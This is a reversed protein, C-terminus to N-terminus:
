DDLMAILEELSKAKAVGAPPTREISGSVVPEEESKIAVGNSKKGRRLEVGLARAEEALEKSNDDAADADVDFAAADKRLEEFGADLKVILDRRSRALGESVAIQALEPGMWLGWRVAAALVERRLERWRALPYSRACVLYDERSPRAFRRAIALARRVNNATSLGGLKDDRFESAEAHEVGLLDYGAGLVIDRARSFSPETEGDATIGRLHDDAARIIYGVNEALPATLKVRRVPKGHVIVDVTIEFRKALCTLVARDTDGSVEVPVVALQAPSPARMASPSGIV